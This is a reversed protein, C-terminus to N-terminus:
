CNKMAAHREAAPLQLAYNKVITQHTACTKKSDTKYKQIDQPTLDESEIMEFLCRTRLTDRNKLTTESLRSQDVYGSFTNIAYATFLFTGDILELVERRSNSKEDTLDLLRNLRNLYTNITEDSCCNEAILSGVPLSSSGPNGALKFILLVESPTLANENLLTTM